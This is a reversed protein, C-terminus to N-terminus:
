LYKKIYTKFEQNNMRIFEPSLCMGYFLWLCLTTINVNTMFEIWSYFWIFTVFLGVAKIYVNQAKFTKVFCSASLLFFLLIYLLGGNTYYNVIQAEGKRESTGREFGINGERKYQFKSDYGHQFGRGFMISKNNISSTIAEEYVITRTDQTLTSTKGESSLDFINFNSFLGLYLFIFPSVLFILGLVKYIWKYIWKVYILSAGLIFTLAFKICQSRADYQIGISFIFIVLFLLAIKKKQSFEGWFIIPILYLGMLYGTGEPYKWMPLFLIFVIITIKYISKNFFYSLYLPTTRYAVTCLLIGPTSNLIFILENRGQFEIISKITLYITYVLFTNLFLYNGDTIKNRFENKIIPYSFYLALVVYELLLLTYTPAWFVTGLYKSLDIFSIFIVCFVFVKYNQTIQYM